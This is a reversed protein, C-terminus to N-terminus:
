MMGMVMGDAFVCALISVIAHRDRQLIHLAINRERTSSRTMWTNVRAPVPPPSICGGKRLNKSSVALVRQGIQSFNPVAKRGDKKCRGQFKM